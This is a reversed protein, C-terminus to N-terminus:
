TRCGSSPSQHRRHGGRTNHGQGAHGGEGRPKRTRWRAAFRVVLDGDGGTAVLDSARAAGASPRQLRGPPPDAQIGVADIARFDRDPLVAGTLLRAGAGRDGLELLWPIPCVLGIAAAVRYHPDGPCLRLGVTPPSVLSKGGLCLPLAGRAPRHGIVSGKGPPCIGGQGGALDGHEGEVLFPWIACRIAGLLSWEGPRDAAPGPAVAGLAQAVHGAVGRLPGAVPVQRSKGSPAAGALVGRAWARALASTRSGPPVDDLASAPDFGLEERADVGSARGPLGM